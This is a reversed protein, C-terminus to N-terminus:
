TENFLRSRRLPYPTMPKESNGTNLTVAISAQKAQKFVEDASSASIKEDGDYNVVSNASERVNDLLISVPVQQTATRQAFVSLVLLMVLGIRKRM